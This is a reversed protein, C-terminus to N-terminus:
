IILYFLYHISFKRLAAIRRRDQGDSARFRQYFANQHLYRRILAVVSCSVQKLSPAFMLRSYM